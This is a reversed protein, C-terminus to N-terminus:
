HDARELVENCLKCWKPMPNPDSVNAWVGTPSGKDNMLAQARVHGVTVDCKKCRVLCEPREIM